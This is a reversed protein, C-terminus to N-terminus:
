EKLISFGINKYFIAENEELRTYPSEKIYLWYEGDGELLIYSTSPDFDITNKETSRPAEFKPQPLFVYSTLLVMTTSLALVTQRLKSSKGPRFNMVARFREEIGAQEACQLLATATYPLTDNSASIRKLSDIIAQLYPAKERAGLHAIVTLDCKIELTQELDKKLLYVFPNMWFIICFLSTMFKVVTDKNNFHMLEHLLIYRLERDTYEKPPLIIRKQFIGLGFPVDINPCVWVSIKVQKHVATQLRELTQQIKEDALAAYRTMGRITKQYQLVYRILLICCVAVWLISLISLYSIALSTGAFAKTHLFRYVAPYIKESEVIVSPAVEVPCFMRAASFLYLLFMYFVGFCRSSRKAKRLLYTLVILASSWLIASLFSFITVQM